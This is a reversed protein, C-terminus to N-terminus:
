RKVVFKVSEVSGSEHAITVIYTGSLWQSVNIVDPMDNIKGSRIVQGLTNLIAYKGNKSKDIGIFSVVDSTPNPYVTLKIIEIIPASRSKAENATLSSSGGFMVTYDEIEGYQINHCPDSYRFIGMMVRMRTQEVGEESSVRIVSNIESRSVKSLLLEDNSFHGDKNTDIWVKWLKKFPYYKSGAALSIYNRGEKLSLVKDTYDSYGSREGNFHYDDNIGVGDIWEYNSNHAIVDCYEVDDPPTCYGKYFVNDMNKVGTNRRMVDALRTHSIENRDNRSIFRDRTYYFRDARRIRKFQLSLVKQITKGFPSNTAHDEALMGVWADIKDVSGYAMKLKQQLEKDSTIQRFRRYKRLGYQQRLKNYSHLGHDRGRQINLAALDLGGAGPPGFLFSRIASVLNLDVAQQEQNTLGRLIGDVGNQQIFSPNFFSQALTLEESIEGCEDPIIQLTESVMTHGIRYAATAFSNFIEPSRWRRYSSSGLNLGLIPALENYFISQIIGGVIKRAYHYNTEDDCSGQAILDDCIRNHERVFITHLATLGPQENARIDGAVFLVRMNGNHDRDMDMHPASQDPTEKCDGTATNCPLLDGNPTSYVKLKGCAGSRLWKARDEDSGYVMSADMWSTIANTQQRPNRRGTGTGEQAKSRSFPIMVMGTHMPDFLPDGQPVFIPAFEGGGESFSLDHDIFQMFTFVLSSHGYRNTKGEKQHCLLNSLARPNPGEKMGSGNSKYNAYGKRLFQVGAKGENEHSLDNFSGNFTRNKYYDVDTQSIVPVSILLAVSLVITKLNNFNCM